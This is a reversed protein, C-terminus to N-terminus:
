LHNGDQHLRHFTRAAGARLGGSLRHQCGVDTLIAQLFTLSYAQKDMHFGYVGCYAAGGHRLVGCHCGEAGGLRGLWRINDRISGM